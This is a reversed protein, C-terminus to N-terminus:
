TRTARFKVLLRLAVPRVSVDTLPLRGLLDRLEGARMMRVESHERRHMLRFAPSDLM